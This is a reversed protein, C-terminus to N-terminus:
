LLPLTTTAMQAHLAIGGKDRRKRHKGQGDDGRRDASDGAAAGGVVPCPRRSRRSRGAAQDAVGRGVEADLRMAPPLPVTESLDSRPLTTRTSKQPVNQSGQLFDNGLSCSRFVLYEALPRCITPM